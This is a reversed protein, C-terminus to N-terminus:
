RKGAIGKRGKETRRVEEGDRRRGMGVEEKGKKQEKRDWAPTPTTIIM